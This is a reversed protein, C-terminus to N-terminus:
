KGLLVYVTMQISLCTTCVTSLVMFLNVYLAHVDRECPSTSLATWWRLFQMINVLCWCLQALCNLCFDMVTVPLRAALRRRKCRLSGGTGRLSEGMTKNTGCFFPCFFTTLELFIRLAFREVGVESYLGQHNNWADRIFHTVPVNWHPVLGPVIIVTKVPLVCQHFQLSMFQSLSGCRLKLTVRKFLSHGPKNDMLPKIVSPSLLLIHEFIMFVRVIETSHRRWRLILTSLIISGIVPLDEFGATLWHSFIMM